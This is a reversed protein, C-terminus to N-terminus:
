KKKYKGIFGQVFFLYVSIMMIFIPLFTTDITEAYNRTSFVQAKLIFYALFLVAFANFFLLIPNFNNIKLNQSHSFNFTAKNKNPIIMGLIQVIGIIALSMAIYRLSISSVDDINYTFRWSDENLHM